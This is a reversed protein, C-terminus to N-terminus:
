ESPAAHRIDAVLADIDAQTTAWSCMFRAAYQGIFSYYKWGRANLHNIIEPTMRVFVANAETPSDLSVGPIQTLQQSLNAAYQNAHSAHKLAVGDTLMGLWPASLYRMKSALQGAQKCRYEFENSLNRDFFIVAEGVPLGNKTGGLCLVDVGVKWTIEKPQLNLAALANFFRAGDLHTYLNHRRTAENLADLENPTYVTGLETAQTISLAKPKPYHVDSRRTVFENVEYPTVKGNPAPTALLKLGNSFFEPGGCEDTEVHALQSCIVSHYSRCLSSLALSNAATGNFTFFVDCNIEFLDRLLDCVQQTFHDDGYPAAYGANAEAIAQMAEPCIGSTNDSAFQYGPLVSTATTM